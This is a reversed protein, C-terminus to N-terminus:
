FGYLARVFAYWRSTFAAADLGLVRGTDGNARVLEVLAQRGHTEVVFAGISHGVDYM